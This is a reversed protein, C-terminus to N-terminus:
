LVPTQTTTSTTSSSSSTPFLALTTPPATSTTTSPPPLDKPKNYQCQISETDIRYTDDKHTYRVVCVPWPQAKPMYHVEHYHTDISLIQADPRAANVLTTVDNLESKTSFYNTGAFAIGAGALLMMGVCVTMVANVNRRAILVAFAMVAIVVSILLLYSYDIVM